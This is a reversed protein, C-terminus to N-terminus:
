RRNLPYVFLQDFYGPFQQNAIEIAEMLSKARVYGLTERWSGAAKCVVEYSKM